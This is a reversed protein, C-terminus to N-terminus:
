STIKWTQMEREAVSNAFCMKRINEITYMAMLKKEKGICAEKRKYLLGHVYIHVHATQETYIFTQM